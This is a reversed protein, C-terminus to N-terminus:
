CFVQSCSHREMLGALEEESPPRMWTRSFQAVLQEVKEATVRTERTNTQDPARTLGFLAFLLGGLVLFHLLPERLLARLTMGRGEARRESTYLIPSTYAREQTIMPVEEPM